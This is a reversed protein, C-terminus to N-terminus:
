PARRVVLVTADDRRRAHDRYLVAAVLAPHREALGPYDALEWHTAVGDSHMVLLGGDPWDYDFSRISRAEHGATGSLSVMKRVKQSGVLSASINGIGAYRVAPGAGTAEAVAVAAGRTPRLAHHVAEVIRAAPLAAHRRFAEVALRSAEAAHRGHGLGDAVLAVPRGDPWEVAWRDGSEKETALAVNVAGVEGPAAGAPAGIRALVATGKGPASYVDFVSALRTIAGLGQGATGATSYGDQLARRLDPIGPGRDVVVVDLAGGGAAPTLLVQGGAAHIVANRTAEAAVIAAHEIEVESLGLARAARRAARRAEGVGSDDEARVQRTETDWGDSM